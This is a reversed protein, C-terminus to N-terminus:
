HRAQDLAESAASIADSSALAPQALTAAEREASLIVPPLGIEDSPRHRTAPSWKSDDLLTDIESSLFSLDLSTQAGSLQKRLLLPDYNDIARKYAADYIEGLLSISTALMNNELPGGLPQWSLATRIMQLTPEIAEREFLCDAYNAVVQLMDTRAQPAIMQERFRPCSLSVPLHATTRGDILIASVARHAAVMGSGGTFDQFRAGSSSVIAMDSMLGASKLYVCHHFIEAMAQTRGQAHVDLNNFYIISSPDTETPVFRNQHGGTVSGTHARHAM